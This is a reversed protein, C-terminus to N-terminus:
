PRLRVFRFQISVDRVTAGGEIMPNSQQVAYGDLVLTAYPTGRITLTGFSTVAAAIGSLLSAFSGDAIRYQCVLSVEGPDTGVHKAVLGTGRPLPEYDYTRSPLGVALVPRGYGSTTDNWLTTGAFTITAM